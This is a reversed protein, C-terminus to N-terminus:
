IHRRGRKSLRVRPQRIATATARHKAAATRAEGTPAAREARAGDGRRGLGGERLRRFYLRVNIPHYLTSTIHNWKKNSSDQDSYAALDLDPDPYVALIMDGRDTNCKQKKTSRIRIQFGKFFQFDSEPYLAPPIMVGRHSITCENPFLARSRTHRHWALAAAAALAM